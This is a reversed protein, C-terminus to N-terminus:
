EFLFTVVFEKDEIELNISKVAELEVKKSITYVKKLNRLEIRAL